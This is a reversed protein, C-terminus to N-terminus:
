ARQAVGAMAARWPAPHNSTHVRQTSPSRVRRQHGATRAKQAGASLIELVKKKQSELELRKSRIPELAAILEEAFIKKCDTCGSEAKTCWDYVEQRKRSAFVNYYSFCNNRGLAM